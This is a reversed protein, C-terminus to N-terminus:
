DGEVGGYNVTVTGVQAVTSEPLVTFTPSVVEVRKAGAEMIKQILYSPNIDRSIKETQWINYANVAATVDEQIATVASKNSESIYYTLNINYVESLPAKVSVNDTLPRITKDELATQVKEIMAADPISGDDMIFYIDVEGPEESRVVVDGIDTSVNKTHYEYAGSPGATSYGNPAEYIREKLDDDTERDAGNYTVVTNTVDIVYPLTNVITKLEGIAFGNGTAGAETCTAGVTVTTSGAPIECYEDTVFYVDNGNTVRCGAPIPVASEIASPMSFQLTTVAPTAPKRSVGRLAALNDLYDDHAYTLFSMKGAYDAYQMAQYIQVSCAYLILRYPNAQALSIKEGTIEEYKALFDNIMQTQLGDITENDIFSIDPFNDTNFESM